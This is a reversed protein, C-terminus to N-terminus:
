DQAELWALRQREALKSAELLNRRGQVALRDDLAALSTQRAQQGAARDAASEDSIGRLLSRATGGGSDLGRAALSARTGAAATAEKQQRTREAAAAEAALRARERGVDAVEAGTEVAQEGALAAREQDQSVSLTALQRRRAAEEAAMERRWQEEQERRRLDADYSAQQRSLTAQHERQVYGTVLPLVSDFGAM